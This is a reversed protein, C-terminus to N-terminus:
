AITRCGPAAAGTSVRRRDGSAIRRYTAPMDGDIALNGKLTTGFVFVRRQERNHDMLDSFTPLLREAAATEHGDSHLRHILLTQQEIHHQVDRVHQRAQELEDRRSPM